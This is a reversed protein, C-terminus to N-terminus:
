VENGVEMLMAFLGADAAREFMAADACYVASTIGLQRSPNQAMDAHLGLHGVRQRVEDDLLGDWDGLDVDVGARRLGVALEARDLPSSNAEALRTLTESM